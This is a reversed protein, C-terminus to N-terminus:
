NGLRYILTDSPNALISGALADATPEAKSVGFVCVPASDQYGIDTLTERLEPVLEAKGVDIIPVGADRFTEFARSKRALILGGSDLFSFEESLIAQLQEQRNSDDVIDAWQLADSATGTSHTDVNNDNLLDVVDDPFTAEAQGRYFDWIDTQQVTSQDETSLLEHFTAPVYLDGLRPETPTRGLTAQTQSAFVTSDTLRELSRNAVLLSPDLLVDIPPEFKRDLETRLQSNGSSM